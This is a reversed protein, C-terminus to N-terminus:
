GLSQRNDIVDQAVKALKINQDQSVRRLYAFARDSDIHFAKMLIGEAQGITKRSGLAKYLGEQTKAAAIAATAHASLLGVVEADDDDFANPERSYVNLSGVRQSDTELSASVVSHYGLEAAAKGWLPWREDDQTNRVIYIANGGALASWCPGEAYQAQLQHAEDVADSTGTPTEVRGGGHVLMVGADDAGVAVRAYESVAEITDDRSDLDAVELAMRSLLANLDV